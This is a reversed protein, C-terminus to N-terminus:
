CYVICDTAELLHVAKSNRKDLNFTCFHPFKDTLMTDSIHHLANGSCGGVAPLIYFYSLHLALPKYTCPVIFANTLILGSYMGNLTIGASVSSLTACCM